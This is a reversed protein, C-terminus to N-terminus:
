RANKAAESPSSVKAALYRGTLTQAERALAIPPGQFVIQGGNRGAEPGMDIIWDANAIVDLNHEIVIVTSGDDVLRDLIKLLRSVDSMHLGTTPEDLIYIGEGDGLKMSLKLRQLEGGSLSSLPQGVSLYGLGVAILADLTPTIEPNDFFRRADSLSM